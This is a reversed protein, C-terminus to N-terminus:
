ECSCHKLKAVQLGEDRKKLEDIVDEYKKTYSHDDDTPDKRESQTFGKMKQMCIPCSTPEKEQPIQARCKNCLWIIM